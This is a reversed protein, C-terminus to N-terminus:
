MGLISWVYTPATLTFILCAFLIAPATWEFQGHKRYDFYAMGLKAFFFVALILDIVPFIVNNVVTKIQESATTWTGEIAEAVNGTEAAFATTGLLAALLFVMVFGCLVKRYKTM